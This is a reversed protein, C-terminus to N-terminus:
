YGIVAVVSANLAGALAASSQDGFGSLGEVIVTDHDQSLRKFFSMAKDIANSQELGESPLPLPWDNSGQKLLKQFAAIDPDSGPPSTTFPKFVATSRGQSSLIHALTVCLATKGAGKQDSAIYIASM